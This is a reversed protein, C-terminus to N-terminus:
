FAPRRHTNQRQSTQRQGCCVRGAHWIRKGEKKGAVHIKGAEISTDQELPDVASLSNIGQIAIDSNKGNREFKSVIEAVTASSTIIHHDAEVIAAV